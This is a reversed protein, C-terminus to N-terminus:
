DDRYGNDIHLWRIHREYVRPSYKNYSTTTKTEWGKKKLEWMLKNAATIDLTKSEHKGNVECYLFCDFIPHDTSHYTIITLSIIYWKMKTVKREKGQM